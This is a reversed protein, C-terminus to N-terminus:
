KKRWAWVKRGDTFRTFPKVYVASSDILKLFQEAVFYNSTIIAKFHKTSYKNIVYIAEEFNSVVKVSIKLGLYECYFDEETAIFKLM